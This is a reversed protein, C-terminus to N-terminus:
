LSIFLVYTYLKFIAGIEEDYQNYLNNLSDFELFENMSIEKIKM